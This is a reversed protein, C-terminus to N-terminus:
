FKLAAEGICMEYKVSFGSRLWLLANSPIPRNGLEMAIFNMDAALKLSVCTDEQEVIIKGGEGM